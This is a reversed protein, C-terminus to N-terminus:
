YKVRQRSVAYSTREIEDNSEVYDLSEDALFLQHTNCQQLVDVWLGIMSLVRANTTTTSELRYPLLYHALRWAM